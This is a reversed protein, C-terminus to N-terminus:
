GNKFFAIEANISNQVDYSYENKVLGCSTVMTLFVSKKCRTEEKFTKIKNLLKYSYDKNIEFPLKSFKMECLNITEDKRDILLDIEAGDRIKKSKWAYENSTVGNIGLEQKIESVHNLCVIEFSHGQWNNYEGTDIYSMWSNLNPNKIYTLAFLTFPDILQYFVNNKNNRYNQYKRIFGCQELENLADTLGTGEGINPDESLDKRTLGNRSKSLKEIIAKHKKYNTFLSSFLNDYEYHLEGNENFCLEDINQVLSYNNNILNLYYPIGGFVMYSEIMQRHTFPVKNAIYLEECEKLTFPSLHIKRTIRNYFGGRDTLINKVIWSTASGCVILLLDPDSSGYTNWFLDLASKFSSKPGDLWPLEDIFVIKRKNAGFTKVDKNKLLIKLRSFAEFWDAPRKKITSGYEILSNNFNKLKEVYTGKKVGTTYFSFNNKFFEKILYTKGVRRRGYVVLFEPKNSEFLKQLINQEKERGIINM